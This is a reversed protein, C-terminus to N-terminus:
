KRTVARKSQRPAPKNLTQATGPTLLSQSPLAVDSARVRGDGTRTLTKNNHKLKVSPKPLKRESGSFLVITVTHIPILDTQLLLIFM